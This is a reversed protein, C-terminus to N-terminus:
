RGAEMAGVPKNEGEQFDGLPTSTMGLEETDLVPTAAWEQLAKDVSVCPSMKLFSTWPATTEDLIRAGCGLLLELAFGVRDGWVPEAEVVLQLATRGQGDRVNPRAGARLLVRLTPVGDERDLEEGEEEEEDIENVIRYGEGRGGKLPSADAAMHLANMGNEASYTLVNAGNALLFDLAEYQWSAALYHVLQWPCGDVTVNTDADYNLLASVCLALSKHDTRGHVDRGEVCALFLPTRQQNDLYDVDEGKCGECM